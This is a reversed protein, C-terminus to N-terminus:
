LAIEATNQAIIIKNIPQESKADNAAIAMKLLSENTQISKTDFEKRMPPVYKDSFDAPQASMFRAQNKLAVVDNSTQLSASDTTKMESESVNSIRGKYQDLNEMTQTVYTVAGPSFEGTKIGDDIAKQKQEKTLDDRGMLKRLKLVEQKKKDKEDPKALGQDVM